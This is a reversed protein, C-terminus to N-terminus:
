EGHGELNRRAELPERTVLAGTIVHDGSDSQFESNALLSDPNMILGRMKERSESKVYSHIRMLGGWMPGLRISADKVTM